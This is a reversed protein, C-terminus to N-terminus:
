QIQPYKLSEFRGLGTMATKRYRGSLCDPTKWSSNESAARIM